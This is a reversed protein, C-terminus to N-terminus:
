FGRSHSPWLVSPATTGFHAMPVNTQISQSIGRFDTLLKHGWCSLFILTIRVL